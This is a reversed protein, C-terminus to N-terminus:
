LIKVFSSSDLSGHLARMVVFLRGGNVLKGQGARGKGRGRLSAGRFGLAGECEPEKAVEAGAASTHLTAGRTSGNNRREERQKAAM